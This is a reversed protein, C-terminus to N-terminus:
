SREIVETFQITKTLKKAKSSGNRTQKMATCYSEHIIHMQMIEGYVFIERSIQLPVNCTDTVDVLSDAFTDCLFFKKLSHCCFLFTQSTRHYFM